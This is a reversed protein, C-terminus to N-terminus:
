VITTVNQETPPQLLFISAIELLEATQDESLGIQSAADLVSVEALQEM